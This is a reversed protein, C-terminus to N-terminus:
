EAESYGSLRQAGRNAKLLRAKADYVTIAADVSNLVLDVFDDRRVPARVLDRLRSFCLFAIAVAAGGCIFGLLLQPMVSKGAVKGVASEALYGYRFAFLEPPGMIKPPM